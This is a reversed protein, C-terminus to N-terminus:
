SGKVVEVLIEGARFLDRRPITLPPTLTLVNRDRGGSLIIVGKRLCGVVIRAALDPDPELTQKNRVLEIGLMLGLGRVEAVHPHDALDKELSGKWEAGLAAARHALDRSEVERLSALAMACGLPNGLFTSTHIAEGDSEPWANMVGPTGICASIPYGNALAKGVCLLDPVIQSHEVAFRKGTRGFGTFIEDAILLLNHRNAIDRL